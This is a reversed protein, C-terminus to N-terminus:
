ADGADLPEEGLTVVSRQRPQHGVEGTVVQRTHEIGKM